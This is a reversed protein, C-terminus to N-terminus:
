DQSCFRLRTYDPRYKVTRFLSESYPNDNTVRPRSFSMIVGLEELRADLTAARLANGNHAHLILLQRRSRSIRERLCSRGVLDAAIQSDERDAV